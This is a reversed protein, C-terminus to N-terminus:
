SNRSFENVSRLNSRGSRAMSGISHSAAHDIWVFRSRPREARTSGDRHSRNADGGRAGSDGSTNKRRPGGTGGNCLESRKTSGSGSAPAIGSAKGSAPGERRGFARDRAALFDGSQVQLCAPLCVRASAPLQRLFGYLVPDQPIPSTG